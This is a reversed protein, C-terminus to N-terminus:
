KKFELIASSNLATYLTSVTLFQNSTTNLGSGVLVQGGNPNICYQKQISYDSGNRAQMWAYDGAISIGNDVIVASSSITGIRLAGNAASGSLSAAADLGVIRATGQVDLRFGADTFTGGNQIILNNTSSLKVGTVGNTRLDSFAQGDLFAVSSGGTVRVGFDTGTTATLYGMNGHVAGDTGRAFDITGAQNTTGLLIQAGGGRNQIRLAYSLVNTFAGTTFNPNIDLGVLSDNNATATLFPNINVAAALGTVASGGASIIVRGGNPNIRLERQSTYDNGLRCQIWSYGLTGAVGMELNVASGSPEGLRISGNATSGGTALPAADTGIIDVKQIPLGTGGFKGQGSIFFNGTQVAALQNLIYSGSITASSKRLNGSADITINFDTTANTPLSPIQVAGNGIIINGGNPNLRLERNTVYAGSDRSQIWSYGLTGAVGIDLMTNVVGIGFIRVAGNQATGSAAPATDTGVVEFQQLASNTGGVKGKGSIFFNSSTQLTTRNQIYNGDFVTRDITNLTNNVGDWIVVGNNLMTDKRTAVAKLQGTIGIRFTDKFEDFVFLYDTASGRDIQIGSQGATVGAVVEGANLTMINDKVEVVTSNVITQTGNVILDGNITTNGNVTLGGIQISRTTIYGRAVVTDLTENAFKTDIEAKTYVNDLGYYNKKLKWNANNNLNSDVLGKLLIFEENTSDIYVTMGNYRWALNDRETVDFVVMRDDVPIGARLTFNAILPIM